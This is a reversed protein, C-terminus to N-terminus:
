KEMAAQRLNSLRYDTGANSRSFRAPILMQLRLWLISDKVSRAKEQGDASSFDIIQPM